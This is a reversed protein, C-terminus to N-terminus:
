LQLLPLAFLVFAIAVVIAVCIFISQLLVATICSSITMVTTRTKMVVCSRLKTLRITPALGIVEETTRASVRLVLGQESLTATCAEAGGVPVAQAPQFRRIAGEDLRLSFMISPYLIIHLIYLIYVYVYLPCHVIYLM